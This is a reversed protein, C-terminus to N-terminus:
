TTKCNCFIVQWNFLPSKARVRGGDFFTPSGLGGRPEAGGSGVRIITYLLPIMYHTTVQKISAIYRLKAFLFQFYSLDIIGSWIWASFQRPVTPQRQIIPRNMPINQNNSYESEYNIIRTAVYPFANRCDTHLKGLRLQYISLCVGSNLYRPM